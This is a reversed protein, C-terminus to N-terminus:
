QIDAPPTQADSEVRPVWATLIKREQEPTLKEEEVGALEYISPAKFPRKPFNKEVARARWSAALADIEADSCEDYMLDHNTFADGFADGSGVCTKASIILKKM